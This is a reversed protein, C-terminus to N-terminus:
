ESQTKQPSEFIPLPAKLGGKGEMVRSKTHLYSGNIYTFFDHQIFL